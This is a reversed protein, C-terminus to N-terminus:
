ERRGGDAVSELAWTVGQAALPDFSLAADGVALWGPGALERLRASAASVIRLGIGPAAPGLRARTHPARALWRRWFSFRM